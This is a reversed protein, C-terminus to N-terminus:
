MCLNSCLVLRMDRDDSPFFQQECTEQVWTDVDLIGLFSHVHVEYNGVLLLLQVHVHSQGIRKTKPSVIGADHELGELCLCRCLSLVKENAPSIHQSPFNNCGSAHDPSSCHALCSSHNLKLSFRM